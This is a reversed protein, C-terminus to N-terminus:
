RDAPQSLAVPRPNLPDLPNTPLPPALSPLRDRVAPDLVDDAADLLDDLHDVSDVGIIAASVEPRGLVWAVALRAPSMGMAAAATRVQRAVALVPANWYTRQLYSRSGIRTGKPPAEGEDYAAALVGGAMVQYALVGVAGAACSPFMELEADRAVMSYTTQSAAFASWGAVDSRWLSRQLQWAAFNSCGIYRVAGNRVLSDLASLTEDIPTLPDWCHVQYLDIRDTGLRRLSGHVSDIVARRSLDRGHRAPLTQPRLGVKTMIFVDDRCEKVAAGLIRESEGAAYVDATDFATVGCDLARAIIKTAEQASLLEGWSVGGLVVRSILAGTSGLRAYRM